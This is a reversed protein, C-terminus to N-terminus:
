LPSEMERKDGTNNIGGAYNSQLGRQKTIETFVGIDVCGFPSFTINVANARTLPREAPSPEPGANAGPWMMERRQLGRYETGDSTLRSELV